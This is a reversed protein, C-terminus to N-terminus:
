GDGGLEVVLLALKDALREARALMAELRQVQLGCATHHNIASQLQEDHQRLTEEARDLREDADEIRALLSDSV